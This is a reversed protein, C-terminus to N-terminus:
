IESAFQAYCLNLFSLWIFFITMNKENVPNVERDIIRSGVKLRILVKRKINNM